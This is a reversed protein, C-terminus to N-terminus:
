GEVVDRTKDFLEIIRPIVIDNVEAWSTGSPLDPIGMMKCARGRYEINWEGGTQTALHLMMLSGGIFQIQEETM